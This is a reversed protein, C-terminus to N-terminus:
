KLPSGAGEKIGSEEQRGAGTCSGEPNVETVRSQSQACEDSRGDRNERSCNSGDDKRRMELVVGSTDIGRGISEFAERMRRQADPTDPVFTRGCTHPVAEPNIGLIKRAARNVRIFKSDLEENVYAIPAEDFVDRYREESAQHQRRLSEFARTRELEVGARGAFIEMVSLVLPDRALPKDDVIVLHGIVEGGGDRLPVGLYSEAHMAVLAEDEPFQCQLDGDFHCTRGETVILCPTGRLDYEFGPGAQDGTWFALSRARQNPLCEAVFSYRVGLGRALHQVLSCFFERGTVTSTGQIIAHLM